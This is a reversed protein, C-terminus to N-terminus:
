SKGGQRRRGAQKDGPEPDEHEPRVLDAWEPHSDIAAAPIRAGARHALVPMSGAGEAYVYLPESAVVFGPDPDDRRDSAM